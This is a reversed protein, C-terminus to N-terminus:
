AAFQGASGDDGCLLPGGKCAAAAAGAGAGEVGRALKRGGGSVPVVGQPGGGAGRHAAAAREASPQDGHVRLHNLLVGRPRSRLHLGPRPTSSPIPDTSPKSASSLHGALTASPHKQLKVWARNYKMHHLREWCQRAICITAGFLGPAKWFHCAVNCTCALLGAVLTHAALTGSWACLVRGLGVGDVALLGDGWQSAQLWHALDLVTLHLGDMSQLGDM